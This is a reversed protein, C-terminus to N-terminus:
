RNPNVQLSIMQNDALLLHSLIFISLIHLKQRLVTYEWYQIRAIKLQSPRKTCKFNKTSRNRQTETRKCIDSGLIGNIVERYWTSPLKRLAPMLSQM